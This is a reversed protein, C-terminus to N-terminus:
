KDNLKEILTEISQALEIDSKEFIPNEPDQSLEINKLDPLYKDLLKFRQENAKYLKNLTFTAAQLKKYDVEEGGEIYVDLEEIKEINEVIYREHQKESLLERLTEQRIARNKAAATAAM